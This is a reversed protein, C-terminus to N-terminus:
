DRLGLGMEDPSVMEYMKMVVFLLAQVGGDM